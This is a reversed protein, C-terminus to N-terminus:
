KGIFRKDIIRLLGQEFCEFSFREKADKKANASLQNLFGPDMFRMIGNSISLPSGYRVVAGNIGDKLVHSAGGEACAVIPLGHSMAEVYVLGFGEQSSPMIFVDNQEFQAAIEDDSVFGLFEVRDLIQFEKAIGMLRSRDDGDGVLTYHINDVGMQKLIAIAEITDDFGKYDNASSLQGISLLKLQDNGERPSREEFASLDQFRGPELALPLIDIQTKLTGHYKLSQTATYPTTCIIATAKKMAEKGVRNIPHWAERGHLIVGYDTIMRMQKLFLGVPALGMHGFLASKAGKSAAISATVFKAKSNSAAAFSIEGSGVILQAFRATAEEPEDALSVASKLYSAENLVHAVMRMYTQIGGPAGFMQSALLATKHYGDKKRFL